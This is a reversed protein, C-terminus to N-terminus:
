ATSSIRDLPLRIVFVTGQGQESDFTLTGGHKRIIVDHAIALGQGTGKGVSKTTFFPDFIKERIPAPIGCGSDAIRIEVHRGDLHTSVKITGKENEGTSKIKEELAHGANVLINLFVQGLEDSLCSVQPLEPELDEQMNAWYKWENSAVIITTQLISNIDSLAMEKSSPHSFEKMAQVITSIRTVGDRSQEIATPIEEALYSWETQSLSQRVVQAVQEPVGGQDLKAMQEKVTELLSGIDAFADKLFDINNGVFQAPTNIEHAIGAALRGVSELKNAQLLQAQTAQLENLANQLDRGQQQLIETKRQVVGELSLNESLLELPSNGEAAFGEVADMLVEITKRQAEIKFRLDTMLQDHDKDRKMKAGRL